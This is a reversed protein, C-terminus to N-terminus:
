RGPRGPAPAESRVVGKPPAGASASAPGDAAAAPEHYQPHYPGCASLTLATCALMAIASFRRATM